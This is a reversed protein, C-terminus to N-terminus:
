GNDSFSEDSDAPVVSERIFPSGSNTSWDALTSFLQQASSITGLEDRDRLPPSQNPDTVRSEFATPRIYQRDDSHVVM